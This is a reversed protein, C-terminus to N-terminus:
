FGGRSWKRRWYELAVSVSLEQLDELKSKWKLTIWTNSWASSSGSVGAWTEVGRPQTSGRTLSVEIVPAKINLWKTMILDMRGYRWLKITEFAESCSHIIRSNQLRVVGSINQIKKNILNTFILKTFLIFISFIRCFIM